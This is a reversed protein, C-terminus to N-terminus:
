GGNGGMPRYRWEMAQNGDMLSTRARLDGGERWYRVRQPYENAPNAFEIMQPGSDVMPFHTPPNGSPQAVFVLKGEPDRMIRTHEFMLLHGADGMRAAGIMLGGRPPTWFEDAWGGADRTQAWAGALWAPLSVDQTAMVPTALTLLVAGTIRAIM